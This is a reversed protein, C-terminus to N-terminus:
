KVATWGNLSTAHDDLRAFAECEGLPKAGDCARLMARVSGLQVELQQRKVDLHQSLKSLLEHLQRCSSRPARRLQVLDAIERLSFGLAKCRRVFTLEAVSEEGYRRHTRRAQVPPVRVLGLRQYYRVTEVGVGSRRGLEAITMRKM